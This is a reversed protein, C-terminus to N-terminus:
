HYGADKEQDIFWQFKNPHRNSMHKLLVGNRHFCGICNNMYAFRVNKNKWYKEIKDKFLIITPFYLRFTDGSINKVLLHEKKYMSKQVILRQQDCDLYEGSFLLSTLLILILLYKM